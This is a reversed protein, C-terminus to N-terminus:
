AESWNERAPTALSAMFMISSPVSERSASSILSSSIVRPAVSPVLEFRSLDVTDIDVRLVVSSSASSSKESTTRLGAKGSFSISRSRVCCSM